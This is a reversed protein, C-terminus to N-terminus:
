NSGWIREVNVGREERREKEVRWRSRESKLCSSGWEECLVWDTDFENGISDEYFDLFNTVFEDKMWREIGM